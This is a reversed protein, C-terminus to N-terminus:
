IAARSLPCDTVLGPGPCTPYGPEDSTSHKVSKESTEQTRKLVQSHRDSAVHDTISQEHRLSHHYQHVRINSVDQPGAVFRWEQEVPVYSVCADVQIGKKSACGACTRSIHM